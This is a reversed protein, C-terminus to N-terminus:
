HVYICASLTAKVYESGCVKNLKPPEVNVFSGGILWGPCWGVKTADSTILTDGKLKAPKIVWQTLVITAGIVHECMKEEATDMVEDAKM